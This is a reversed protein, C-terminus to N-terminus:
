YGLYPVRVNCVALHIQSLLSGFTVYIAYDREPLFPLSGSFRYIGSAPQIVSQAPFIVSLFFMYAVHMRAIFIPFM